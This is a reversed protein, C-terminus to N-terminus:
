QRPVKGERSGLWLRRSCTSRASVKLGNHMHRVGVRDGYAHTLVTVRHGLALLCQALTHVHNEVGGYNPYFFDTVLLVSRRVRRGEGDLAGVRAPAM